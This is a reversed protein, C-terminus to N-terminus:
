NDAVSVTKTGINVRQKDGKRCPLDRPLPWKKVHGWKSVGTAQREANKCLLLDKSFM